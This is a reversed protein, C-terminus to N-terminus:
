VYYPFFPNLKLHYYIKEILRKSSTQSPNLWDNAGLSLAEHSLPKYSLFIFPTAFLVSHGRIFKLLALGSLRPLDYESVILHPKILKIQRLASLGDVSKHVQFHDSLPQTYLELTKKVPHVVIINIM